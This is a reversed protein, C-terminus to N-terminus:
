PQPSLPPTTPLHRVSEADWGGQAVDAWIGYLQIGTVLSYLDAAIVLALRGLEQAPCGLSVRIM